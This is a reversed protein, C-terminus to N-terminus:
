LAEDVDRYGEAGELLKRMEEEEMRALASGDLEPLFSPDALEALLRKRRAVATEVTAAGRLALDRVLTADAVGGGEIRRVRVLAEALEPDVTVSLRRHKTPVEVAYHLVKPVAGM